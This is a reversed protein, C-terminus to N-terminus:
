KGRKVEQNYPDVQVGREIKPKATKRSPWQRIKDCFMAWATAEDQAYVTGKVSRPVFRDGEGEEPFTYRDGTQEPPKREYITAEVTWKYRLKEDERMKAYTPNLCKFMEDFREAQAAKLQRIEEKHLDLSTPSPKPQLTAEPM